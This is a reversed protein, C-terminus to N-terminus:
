GPTGMPGKQIFPLLGSSPDGPRAYPDVPVIFQHKPTQARIGDLTEGYVFNAERGVFYSVGTKAMLDGEYSADIFMEARFVRGDEMKIETIRSKKKKVSALREQFFVRAGSEAILDHFLREAVGPELKWAENTGYHRGMRRYFERSIGGIAAKNGIDTQSLGGSTMGGLHNGFETLVVTKGARGAQVAAVVGASTGGCVCGDGQIVEAELSRSLLLFCVLGEAIWRMAPRNGRSRARKSRAFIEKKAAAFLSRRSRSSNRGARAFPSRKRRPSRVTM